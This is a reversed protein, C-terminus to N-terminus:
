TYGPLQQPEAPLEFESDAVSTQYSTAVLESIAGSDGSGANTKVYLPVGEPSICYRVTGDTSVVLYCDAVTGAVPMTGDRTVTYKEPESDLGTQLSYTAYEDESAQGGLSYCTWSGSLQTCTYITKGLVYSRIDSGSAEMDMRFNEGKMYQTFETAVSLATGTLQYTAKWGNNLGLASLLGDLAGAGAEEQTGTETRPEPAPEGSPQQTEGEAAQEPQPQTGQEQQVQPQQNGTAPQQQQGGAQQGGAQQACGFLLVACVLGIVLISKM